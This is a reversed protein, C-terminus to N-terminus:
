KEEEPDIGIFEVERNSALWMLVVGILLALISGIWSGAQSDPRFVKEFGFFVFTLLGIERANEAFRLARHKLRRAELVTERLPEDSVRLVSEGEFNLAFSWGNVGM